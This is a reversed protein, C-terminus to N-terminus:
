VRFVDNLLVLVEARVINMNLKVSLVKGWWRDVIVTTHSKEDIYVLLVM